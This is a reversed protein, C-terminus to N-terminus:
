YSVLSLVTIFHIKRYLHLVLCFSSYLAFFFFYQQITIYKEKLENVKAGVSNLQNELKNKRSETKKLNSNVYVCVCCIPQRTHGVHPSYKLTDSCTFM